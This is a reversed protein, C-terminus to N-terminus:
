FGFTEFLKGAAEAGDSDDDVVLVSAGKTAYGYKHVDMSLSTVGDVGFHWPPVPEGLEEWFPLLWGGLCADVHCLTRRESAM